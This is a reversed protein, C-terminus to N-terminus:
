PARKQIKVYRVIRHRVYREFHFDVLSTSVRVSSQAICRFMDPDIAPAYTDGPTDTHAVTVYLHTAYRLAQNYLQGGGIIWVDKEKNLVLFAELDHIIEVDSRDADPHTYNRDNTLVVNYRNPLPRFKQPLSEWTKRGMIVVGGTTLEKFNALDEPLRVPLGGNVGIVGTQTQMWIVNIKGYRITTM